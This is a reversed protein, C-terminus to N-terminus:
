RARCSRHIPSIGCDDANVLLTAWYKLDLLAVPINSAGVGAFSPSVKVPIGFIKPMPDYHVLDLPQGLKTVVASLSALTKNNMLWCCKPSAIYASNLQALANAFDASGLSNAGTNSSGDNASSGSAIVTPSLM